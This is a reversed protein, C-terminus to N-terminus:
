ASDEEESKNWLTFAQQSSCGTDGRCAEHQYADSDLDLICCLM